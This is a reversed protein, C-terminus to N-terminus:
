ADMGLSAHLSPFSADRGPRQGIIGPPGDRLQVPLGPPPRRAPMRQEHSWCPRPLKLGPTGPCLTEWDLSVRKPLARGKVAELTVGQPETRTALRM